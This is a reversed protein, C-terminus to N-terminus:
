ANEEPETQPETQTEPNQPKSKERRRLLMFGGVLVVITIGGGLQMLRFAAPGYRGSEPDYHYCFLLFRDMSSGIKGDAAELLSLKLTQPDYEVGYLYRSVRGDPTLIMTVAAHLYQRQKESYKYHFGVADAVKKINEESGTLYHYGDAAGARRYIKLYKQKTMRAREPTELPDICVTIMDFKDGMNWDMRGLADYLGNLQLSCLMPCNSYNMTLVVPRDGDFYDALKVKKGNSDVFELDLPVKENLHETMGVGKLEPPLPEKREARLTPTCCFLVIAAVAFIARQILLKHCQCGARSTNGERLGPQLGANSGAVLLSAPNYDPRCISNRM